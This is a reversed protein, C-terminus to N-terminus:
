AASPRRRAFALGAVAAVGVAAGLAVMGTSFQPVEEVVATFSIPAFFDDTTNSLQTQTVRIFCNSQDTVGTLPTTGPAVCRWDGTVLDPNNIFLNYNYTESAPSNGIGTTTFNECDNEWVFTPDADSTRCLMYVRLSNPDFGTYTVPVVIDTIATTSVAYSSPSISGTGAFASGALAATAAGIAGLGALTKSAMQPDGKRLNKPGNPTTV